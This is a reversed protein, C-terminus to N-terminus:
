PVQESDSEAGFGIQPLRLCSGSAMSVIIDPLDPAPIETASHRVAAVAISVM